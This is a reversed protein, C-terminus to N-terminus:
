LMQTPARVCYGSINTQHVTAFLVKRTYLVAVFIGNIYEKDPFKVAMLGLKWMRTDSLM